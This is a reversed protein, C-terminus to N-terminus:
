SKLSESARPKGKSGLAIGLAVILTTLLVSAVLGWRLYRQRAALREAKLLEFSEWWSNALEVIMERNAQALGDYIPTPLEDEFLLASYYNEFKLNPLLLEFDPVVQAPKGGVQVSAAHVLYPIDNTDKGWNSFYLVYVFGQEQACSSTEHYPIDYQDLTELLSAHLSQSLKAIEAGDPQDAKDTIAVQVSAPEICLDVGRLENFSITHAWGLSPLLLTFLCILWRM